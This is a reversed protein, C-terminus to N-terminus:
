CSRRYLHHLGGVKLGAVGKGMSTPEFQRPHPSNGELGHRCRGPYSYDDLYSKLLRLAHRKNCVIVHDLLDRRISGIQRALYPAQWPSRPAIVVAEIGMSM